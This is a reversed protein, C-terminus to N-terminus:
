LAPPAPWAAPPSLLLAWVAATFWCSTIHSPLTQESSCDHASAAWCGAPTGQELQPTSDTCDNSSGRLHCCAQQVLPQACCSDAKYCERLMGSTHCRCQSPTAALLVTRGATTDTSRAHVQYAQTISLTKSCAVGADFSIMILQGPMCNVLRHCNSGLLDTLLEAVSMDSSRHRQPQTSHLSSPSM